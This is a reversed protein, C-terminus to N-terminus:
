FIESIVLYVLDITLIMEGCMFVFCFFVLSLHNFPSELLGELFIIETDYTEELISFLSCYM